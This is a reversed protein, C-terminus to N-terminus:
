GIRRIVPSQPIGNSRPRAKARGRTVSRLRERGIVRPRLDAIRLFVKERTMFRRKKRNASARSTSLRSL